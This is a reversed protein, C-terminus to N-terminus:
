PQKTAFLFGQPLCCCRCRCSLGDTALQWDGAPALAMALTAIASLTTMSTNVRCKKSPVSRVRGAVPLPCQGLVTLKIVQVDLHSHSTGADLTHVNSFIGEFQLEHGRLPNIDCRPLTQILIRRCNEIVTNIECSSRRCLLHRVTCAGRTDYSHNHDVSHHSRYSLMM